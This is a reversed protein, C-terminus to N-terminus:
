PIDFLLPECGDDDCDGGEEMAGDVGDLSVNGGPIGIADLEDGDSGDPRAIVVVRSTGDVGGFTDDDSDVVDAGGCDMESATTVCAPKDADVDDM